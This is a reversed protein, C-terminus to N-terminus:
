NIMLLITEGKVHVVIEHQCGREYVENTRYLPSVSGHPLIANTPWYENNNVELAILTEDCEKQIDQFIWM